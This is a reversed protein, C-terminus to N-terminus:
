FCDARDRDSGIRVYCSNIKKINPVTFKVRQLRKFPVRYICKCHIEVRM